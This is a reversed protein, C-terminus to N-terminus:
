SVLVSSSEEERGGERGGERGVLAVADNRRPDDHINQAEQYSLSAVSRIISKCFDVAVIDAQPTLEWLVSFAFHDSTSTLSCLTETLLKPLMDLRRQVLNTSLSPPLTPPLSPPLSSHFTLM